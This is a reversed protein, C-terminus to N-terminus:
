TYRATRWSPRSPLPATGRKRQPSFFCFFTFPAAVSLLYINPFSSFLNKLYTPDKMKQRQSGLNVKIGSGKLYCEDEERKKLRDRGSDESEFFVKMSVVEM